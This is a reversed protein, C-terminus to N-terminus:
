CGATKLVHMKLILGWLIPMTFNSNSCMLKGLDANSFDAEALASGTMNAGHLNANRFNGKIFKINDLDLNSLDVGSLNAGTLNLKFDFLLEENLNESDDTVSLIAKSFNLQVSASAILQLIEKRSFDATTKM